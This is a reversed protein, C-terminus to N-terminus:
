RILKYTLMDGSKLDRLQYRYVVFRFKIFSFYFKLCVLMYGGTVHAKAMERFTKLSDNLETDHFEGTIYRHNNEYIRHTKIIRYKNPM